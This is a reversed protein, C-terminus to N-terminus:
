VVGGKIFCCSGCMSRAAALTYPVCKCGLSVFSYDKKIMVISILVDSAAGRRMRIRATLLLESDCTLGTSALVCLCMRELFNLKLSYFFCPM